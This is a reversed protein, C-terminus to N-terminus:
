EEGQNAGESVQAAKAEKTVEKFEGLGCSAWSRGFSDLVTIVDISCLQATPLSYSFRDERFLGPCKRPLTSIYHKKGRMKFFIQTDSMVTTSIISHPRLCSKSKGTEGYKDLIRATAKESRTQKVKKDGDDAALSGMGLGLSFCLGVLLGTTIKSIMSKKM